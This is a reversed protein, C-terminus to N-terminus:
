RYVFFDQYITMVAVVPGNEMIERMINEEGFVKYIDTPWVKDKMYSKKTYSSQCSGECPPIKWERGGRACSKIALNKLPLFNVKPPTKKVLVRHSQTRSAAVKKELALARHSAKSKGSNSRKGLMEVTVDM